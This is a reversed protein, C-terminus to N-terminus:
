GRVLAVALLPVLNFFLIALKYATMGVVHIRDLTADDMRLLRGHFRHMWDRAFLFALFWLVLVAYNIALSWLLLGFLTDLDM